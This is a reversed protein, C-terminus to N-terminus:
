QVSSGHPPHLQSRRASAPAAAVPPRRPHTGAGMRQFIREGLSAEAGNARLEDLAQRLLQCNDSLTVEATMTWRSPTDEMGVRLVDVQSDAQAACLRGAPAGRLAPHRRSPRRRAPRFHQAAHQPMVAAGVTSASRASACAPNASTTSWPSKASEIM